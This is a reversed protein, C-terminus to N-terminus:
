DSGKLNRSAEILHKMSLELQELVDPDKTCFISEQLTSATKSIWKQCEEKTRM